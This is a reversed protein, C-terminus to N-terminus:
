KKSRTKRPAIDGKPAPAQGLPEVVKRPRGRSAKKHPVTEGKQEGKRKLSAQGPGVQLRMGHTPIGFGGRKAGDDIKKATTNEIAESAKRKRGRSLGQDSTAPPDLDKAALDASSEDTVSPHSQTDPEADVHVNMVLDHHDTKAANVGILLGNGTTHLLKHEDGTLTQSNQQAKEHKGDVSGIAHFTELRNRWDKLLSVEEGQGDHLM